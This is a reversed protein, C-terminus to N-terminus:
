FREDSLYSHEGAIGRKGPGVQTEEEYERRDVEDDEGLELSGPGGAMISDRAEEFRLQIPKTVV